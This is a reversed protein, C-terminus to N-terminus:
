NMRTFRKIMAYKDKYVSMIYSMNKTTLHFQNSKVTIGM